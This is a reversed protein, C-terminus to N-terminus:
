RMESQVRTLDSDKTNCKHNWAHRRDCVYDHRKIFAGTLMKLTQASDDAWKFQEPRFGGFSKRILKGNSHIKVFCAFTGAVAMTQTTVVLDLSAGHETQTHLTM